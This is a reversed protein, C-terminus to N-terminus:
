IRYVAKISASIQQESPQINTAVIKADEAVSGEAYEYMRWPYYDYSDVSTSVLKGLRKDFGDAVSEAKIRADEAALKLAEAKYSNQLKQSLEFNIYSIGAGANVGADIIDGIKSSESTPLEIRISHTAIYGKEVRRNNVWDYDPYVNFNQTQIDKREFGLKLIETILNDVLESNKETAEASTDGKTQANFYVTVLDPIADVQAVGNVTITNTPSVINSFTTIGILGLVVIASVIILTIQVSKEM